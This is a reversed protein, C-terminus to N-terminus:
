EDYCFFIGDVVLKKKIRNQMGHPSLFNKKAAETLSPYVALVEGRDNAKLVVKRKNRNSVRNLQKRTVFMLNEVSCDSRLGNKHALVYGPRKGGLFVDWVVNKVVFHKKGLTVILGNQPTLSGKLLRPEKAKYYEHWGRGVWSRVRGHTSVDYWGDTGPIPKWIERM